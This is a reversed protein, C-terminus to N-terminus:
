KTEKVLKAWDALEPSCVKEPWNEELWEGNYYAATIWDYYHWSGEWEDALVGAGRQRMIKIFYDNVSLAPVVGLYSFSHPMWVAYRPDFCTIVSPWTAADSSFATGAWVIPKETAHLENLMEITPNIFGGLGATLVIPAKPNNPEPNAYYTGCGSLTVLIALWRM